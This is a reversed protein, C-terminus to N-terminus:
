KIGCFVPLSSYRGDKEIYCLSIPDLRKLEEPFDEDTVVHLVAGMKAIADEEERAVAKVYGPDLPIKNKLIEFAKIANGKAKYWIAICTHRVLPDQNEEAGNSLFADDACKGSIIRVVLKEPNQYGFMHLVKYCVQKLTLDSYSGYLMVQGGDRMLNEMEEQDGQMYEDIMKYSIDGEFVDYYIYDNFGEAEDEPLLNTGDGETVHFVTKIDGEAYFWFDSKDVPTGHVKIQNMIEKTDSKKITCVNKM